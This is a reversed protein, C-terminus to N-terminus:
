SWEADEPMAAKAEKARSRKRLREYIVFLSAAAILGILALQVTESLDGFGAAIAALFSAIMGWLTKSEAGKDADEIVDRVPKPIPRTVPKPQQPQAAGRVQALVTEVREPKVHAANLGDGAYYSQGRKKGNIDTLVPLSAWEMALRNGFTSASMEGAIFSGFGRLLLLEYGMRDQMAPSFLEDGSLGMRDKLMALTKRIIQPAGAASSGYKRGLKVQAALVENITMLTLRKPLDGQKHAYVVDFNGGSEKEYIFSLLLKASKPVHLDM